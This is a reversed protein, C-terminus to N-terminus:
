IKSRPKRHPEVSVGIISFAKQTKCKADKAIDCDTASGPILIPHTRNGLNGKRAEADKVFTCTGEKKEKKEDNNDGLIAKNSTRSWLGQNVETAEGAM